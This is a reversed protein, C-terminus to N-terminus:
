SAPLHKDIEENMEQCGPHFGPSGLRVPRGNMVSCKSGSKISLALPSPHVRSTGYIHVVWSGECNGLDGPVLLLLYWSHSPKLAVQFELFVDRGARGALLDGQDQTRVVVGWRRGGSCNTNLFSGTVHSNVAGLRGTRQAAFVNVRPIYICDRHCAM